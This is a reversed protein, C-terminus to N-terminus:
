IVLLEHSSLHEKYETELSFLQNCQACNYEVDIKELKVTYEEFNGNM